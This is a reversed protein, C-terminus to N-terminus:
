DAPRTNLKNPPPRGLRSLARELSWRFGARGWARAALLALAWSVLVMGLTAPLEFSSMAGAARFAEYGAFHHVIFVTLSIRGLDALPGARGLGAAGLAPIALLCIGCALLAFSLSPPFFEPRLGGAALVAGGLVLLVPLSFGAIDPRGSRGAPAVLRDGVGTGLLMFGTWPLLPFFGSVLMNRLYDAASGVSKLQDAHLVEPVGLLWRAFMACGLLGIGLLERACRPLGMLPACLIISLGICQLVGWGFPGYVAQEAFTFAVGALLLAAGRAASRRVFLGPERSRSLSLGAGSLVLFIPAAMGGLMTGLSVLANEAPLERAWWSGLHVELMFLVALGRLADLSAVRGALARDFCRVSDATRGVRGLAIARDYDGTRFAEDADRGAAL